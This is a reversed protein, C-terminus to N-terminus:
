SDSDKARRCVEVVLAQLLAAEDEAAMISDVAWGCGALEFDMQWNERARLEQLNLSVSGGRELYGGGISEGVEFPKGRFPYLYVGYVHHSPHEATPAQNRYGLRLVQHELEAEAMPTSLAFAEAAELEMGPAWHLRQADIRVHKYHNPYALLPWNRRERLPALDLLRPSTDAFVLVLHWRETPMVHLLQSTM